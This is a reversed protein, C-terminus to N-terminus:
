FPPRLSTLRYCPPERSLEQAAARGATRCGQMACQSKVQESESQGESGSCAVVAKSSSGQQGRQAGNQKHAHQHNTEFGAQVATRSTDRRPLPFFQPQRYLTVWLHTVALRKGGTQANSRPTHATLPHPTSHAHIVPTPAHFPHPHCTNARQQPPFSCTNVNCPLHCPM